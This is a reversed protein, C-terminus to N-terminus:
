KTRVVSRGTFTNPLLLDIYPFPLLKTRALTASVAVYAGPATKDQCATTCDSGQSVVGGAAPCGCFTTPAPSATIGATGTASTVAGAILALNDAGHNVAYLAGAEAAAQTEMDQFMAMGVEVVGTVLIMLVPSLLALEIAATGAQGAWGAVVRIM